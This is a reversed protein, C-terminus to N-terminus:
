ADDAEPEDSEVERDRYYEAAYSAFEDDDLEAIEFEPDPIVNASNLPESRLVVSSVFDLAQSAFERDDVWVGVETHVASRETWNASGMWARVARIGQREYGWDGEGFWLEGCVAVKAHLLPDHQGSWGAVRVPGLDFTELPFDGPGLITEAGEVRPVVLEFESLYASSLAHGNDRLKAVALNLRGHVAIGRKDAVVCVASQACLAASVSRSGFWPVCGLVVPRRASNAHAALGKALDDVVGSGFTARSAGLGWGQKTGLPFLSEWSTSSVELDM